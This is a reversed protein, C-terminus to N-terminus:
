RLGCAHLYRPNSVRLDDCVREHLLAAVEAHGERDFRGARLDRTLREDLAHLRGAADEGATRVNEEGYLNAYRALAGAQIEAAVAAERSAIGMANVVMLAAYRQEGELSPLLAAELTERAADLLEVADPRGSM